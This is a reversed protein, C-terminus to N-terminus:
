RSAAGDVAAVLDEVGPRDDPGASLYRWRLRADRDLVVDGGLQLTDQGASPRPRRGRALLGAYRRWVRPDLWVRAISARGFGFARYAARRPDGYLSFPLEMAREFRALMAPEAFTVCAVRGDLDDIREAVEV